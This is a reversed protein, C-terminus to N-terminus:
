RKEVTIGTRCNKKKQTSGNNRCNSTPPLPPQATHVLGIRIPGFIYYYEHFYYFKLYESSVYKPCIPPIHPVYKYGIYAMRPKRFTSALANPPRLVKLRFRRRIPSCITWWSLILIYIYRRAMVTGTPEHSSVTIIPCRFMRLIIVWLEHSLGAIIPVTSCIM